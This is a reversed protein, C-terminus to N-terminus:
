NGLVTYGLKTLEDIAKEARKTSPLGYIRRNMGWGCSLKDSDVDDAAVGVLRVSEAAAELFDHQANEAEAPPHLGEVQRLMADLSDHLAHTKVSCDEKGRDGVVDTYLRSARSANEGGRIDWIAREYQDHTLAVPQGSGAPDEDGCATLLGLM